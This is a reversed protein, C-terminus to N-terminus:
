GPALMADFFEGSHPASLWSWNRAVGFTCIGLIILAGVIVILTSRINM